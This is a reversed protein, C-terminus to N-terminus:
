FPWSFAMTQEVDRLRIHRDWVYSTCCPGSLLLASAACRLGKLRVREGGVIVASWTMCKHM